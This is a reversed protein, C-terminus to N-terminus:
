VTCHPIQRPTLLSIKGKARLDALKALLPKLSQEGQPGESTIAYPHGYLVAIGGKSVCGEVLNTADAGFGGPGNVRVCAIRAHTEIRSPIQRQDRRLVLRRLHDFVTRYSIRCFRYGTEALARCMSLIDIRESRVERRESLSFALRRAFDYPRNFPPVFASVQTGICQELIEKSVRLDEVLAKRGIAPLWDHRLSHSAIEHGHEHISRIQEPDHYPRAGPKAAMAVVAFCAPIKFEDLLELLRNTGSFELAGWSKPGGPQRSRDAAWQTDYDWFLM